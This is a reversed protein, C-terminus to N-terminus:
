PVPGFGGVQNPACTGTGSVINNPNQIWATADCFLDLHGNGTVTNSPTSFNASSQLLLVVGNRSNGTITAGGIQTYSANVLLLGPGYNGTIQPSGLRGAGHLLIVGASNLNNPNLPNGNGTLVTYFLTVTSHTVNIGGGRNNRIVNPNLSSTFDPTAGEIRASSGDYLILGFSACNEIINPAGLTGGLLHLYSNSLAGVGLGCDHVHNGALTATSGEYAFIGTSQDGHVDNNTITCDSALTCLIADIYGGVVEFGILSFRRSHEIQVTTITNNSQDVISAGPTAVLTLDDIGQILVNEKCTGSVTITNPGPSLKTLAERISSKKPHKDDCDVKFNAAHLSGFLLPLAVFLCTLSRFCPLQM